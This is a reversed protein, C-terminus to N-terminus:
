LMTKFSKVKEFKRASVILRILRGGNSERWEAVLKKGNILISFRYSFHFLLAGGIAVLAVCLYSPIGILYCIAFVFLLGVLGIALYILYQAKLGKFEPPKCMLFGRHSCPGYLAFHTNEGM